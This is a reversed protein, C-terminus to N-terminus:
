LQILKLPRTTQRGSLTTFVTNEMEGLQNCFHAVVPRIGEICEVLVGTPIDSAECEADRIVHSKPCKQPGM